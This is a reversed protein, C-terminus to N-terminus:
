RVIQVKFSQAPKGELTISRLVYTGAPIASINLQASNEIDTQQLVQRGSLDFLTTQLPTDTNIQLFDRAPNPFVELHANSVTGLESADLTTKEVFVQQFGQSLSAAGKNVETAIVEGVTFDLTAGSATQLSNGALGIVQRELGAQGSASTAFAFCALLALLIPSNKM